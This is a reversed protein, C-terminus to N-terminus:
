SQANETVRYKTWTSVEKVKLTISTISDPMM